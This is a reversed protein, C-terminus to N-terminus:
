EVIECRRVVLTIIYDSLEIKVTSKPYPDVAILEISYSDFVRTTLKNEGAGKVLIMDGLDQYDKLINVIVKVEGAWICVVDSPCRSDETVDLVTIKINESSIFGMQNVKLQFPTDLRAPTFDQKPFFDLVPNDEVNCGSGLLTLVLISILLPQNKFAQVMCRDSM